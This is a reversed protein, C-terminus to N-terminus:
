LGAKFIGLAGAAVGLAKWDINLSNASGTEQPSSPSGNATPTTGATSTRPRDGLRLPLDVCLKYSSCYESSTCCDEGCKTKLEEERCEDQTTALTTNVVIQQPSSSVDLKANITVGECASLCKYWDSGKRWGSILPFYKTACTQACPYSKCPIDANEFGVLGSYKMEPTMEAPTWSGTGGALYFFPTNKGRIISMWSDTDASEYGEASIMYYMGSPGMEPPITVSINGDNAPLM